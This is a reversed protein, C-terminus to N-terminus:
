KVNVKKTVIDNDTGVVKVIYLGPAVHVNTATTSIIEKGDISYVTCGAANGNVVFGGDTASVSINNYEVDAASDLSDRYEPAVRAANLIEGSTANLVFAVIECNTIDKVNTTAIETVYNYKTGVETVTPLSGNIGNCDFIDRAVENFITNVKSGKNEWGDMQGYSGGSYYNTQPYPGVNNEIIVFALKYNSNQSAVAFEVDANVQIFEPVIADGTYYAGLEVNAFAPLQRAQLFNAELSEASPDFDITRNMICGPFGEAYKNLFPAYTATEMQDGGHVGIGIFGDNGYKEHMYAMGVLGRVCWGCWTGTWEEVVINRSFGNEICSINITAQNNATMTDEVGNVTEVSLTVPIDTGVSTCVLGSINVQVNEGPAIGNKPLPLVINEYKNEGVTVSGTVSTIKNAGTNSLGATLSFENNLIVLAPASVSAVAIDNTPLNEGEIVVQLSINGYSAGIHDWNNGIAIYDGLQSTTPVGDIGIPYDSAARTTLKYGVYFKKGTIEFPTNLTYENWGNQKTIICSQTYIPDGNLDETIFFTINRVTAQGYGIRVKTLTNGEWMQATQEPIEIAAQLAVGSAGTGLGTYLGDCYGFVLYAEDDEALASVKAPSAVKEKFDSMKLTELAVVDQASMSITSLGVCAALM